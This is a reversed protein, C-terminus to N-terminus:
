QRYKLEMSPHQIARRAFRKLLAVEDKPDIGEKEVVEKVHPQKLSPIRMGFYPWLRSSKYCKGKDPFSVLPRYKDMKRFEDSYEFQWIQEDELFTLVGVPIQGGLLLDFTAM